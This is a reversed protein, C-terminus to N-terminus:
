LVALGATGGAATLCLAAMGPVREEGRVRRALVVAGAIHGALLVVLQLIFIGTEDLPNPGVTTPAGRGFPDTLLEPLLRASTLLRNRALAVAVALGAVAPVLAVGVSGEASRTAAWRSLTWLAAACVIALGATGLVAYVPALPVANLIGWLSSLRVRGFILGGALVGLVIEIGRPPRWSSLLGRRFLALWGFLLGFIEASSLWRRRGLALCGALTVITYIGLAAGVNGPTTSHPFASLYWVWAGASVAAARVDDAPRDADSPTLARAAGDWPDTWRWVPGLTASALLLVPWAFGVVLAPALNELESESGFRGALTAVVLLAFALVRGGVQLPSLSGTWSFAREVRDPPAERPSGAPWFRAVTAVVLMSIVASALPPLELRGPETLPHALLSWTAPWLVAPMM